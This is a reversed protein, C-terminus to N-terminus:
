VSKVDINELLELAANMQVAILSLLQQLGNEILLEALNLHRRQESSQRGLSFGNFLDDSKRATHPAERNGQLVVLLAQDVRSSGSAISGSCEINGRSGSKDDRPGPHRDGFM